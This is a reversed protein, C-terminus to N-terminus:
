VSLMIFYACWAAYHGFLGLSFFHSIVFYCDSSVLWHSWIFYEVCHSQNDRDGWGCSFLIPSGVGAMTTAFVSEYFSRARNLDNVPLEFLVVNNTRKEQTM